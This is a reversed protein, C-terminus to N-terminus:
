IIRGKYVTFRNIESLNQRINLKNQMDRILNQVDEAEQEIIPTNAITFDQLHNVELDLEIESLDDDEQDNDHQLFEDNINEYNERDIDADERDDYELYNNIEEDKLTYIRNSLSNMTLITNNNKNELYDLNNLNLEKNEDEFNEEDDNEKIYFISESESPNKISLKNKADQNIISNDDSFQYLDDSNNGTNNGTIPIMNNLSVNNISNNNKMSLINKYIKPSLIKNSTSPTSSLQHSVRLQSLNSQNSKLSIHSISSSISMSRNERGNINTSPINQNNSSSIISLSRNREKEIKRNIKEEKRLLITKIKTIMNNMMTTNNKLKQSESKQEFQCYLILALGLFLKVVLLFLFIFILVIVQSSINIKNNNLWAQMSATNYALIMYRLFVCGIPIQSLGLRHSVKYSHDLIVDKNPKKINNKKKDLSSNDLELLNKSSISTTFNSNNIKSASVSKTDIRELLDQRLVYSFDEYLQSSLGNFKQIFAHKIFDVLMECFYMILVLKIHSLLLNQGDTDFKIKNFFNKLLQYPSFSILFSYFSSFNISIIFYFFNLISQFISNFFDFINLLNMNKIFNFLKSPLNFSSINFTYNIYNFNSVSTNTISTTADSSFSLFNLNQACNVIFIITLFLGCYFREIVDACTLQFLNNEDFKKFVFSKLEAFNNLLLVGLLSTDNSNLVVTLTAIQTFLILSHIIVYIIYAIMIPLLHFICFIISYSYYLKNIKKKQKANDDKNTRGILKVEIILQEGIDAGLSSVLKDVIELMSTLVYLKVVNQMRIYHYIISMNVQTLIFLSITLTIGRILDYAQTRHFSFINYKTIFKLYKNNKKLKKLIDNKKKNNTDINKYIVNKIYFYNEYLFHLFFYPISKLLIFFSYTVRIPLYTLVYLFSDLCLFIGLWVFQEFKYPSIVFNDIHKYHKLKELKIDEDDSDIIDSDYDDSDEEDSDISTNTTSFTSNNIKKKKKKLNDIREDDKITGLMEVRLYEFLDLPRHTEKYIANVPDIVKNIEISSEITNSNSASIIPTSKKTAKSSSYNTKQTLLEKDYANLSKNSSSVSIPNLLNPDDNIFNSLNYKPPSYYPLSHPIPSNYTSSSSPLTTLPTFPESKSLLNNNLNPSLTTSNNSAQFGESFQNQSSSINLNSSSSPISSNESSPLNSTSSTSSSSNNINDTNPITISTSM